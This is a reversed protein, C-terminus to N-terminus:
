SKRWRPTAMEDYHQRLAARAEQETPGYSSRLHVGRAMVTKPFAHCTWRFMTPKEEPNEKCQVEYEEFKPFRPDSPCARQVAGAFEIHGCEFSRIKDWDREEQDVPVHQSEVLPSGCFACQFEALQARTDELEAQLDRLTEGNIRKRLEAHPTNAYIDPRIVSLIQLAIEGASSGATKVAIKDALPPSFDLVREREINHWIPLITSHGSVERAVLGQLEREPWPKSMFAPSLVVIGHRSQALGRDISRSLSDGLKLSFEDYWVKAGLATLAQALARVFGEKDESAHSVFADWQENPMM